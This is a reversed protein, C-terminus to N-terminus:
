GGCSSRGLQRKRQRSAQRSTPGSRVLTQLGNILHQKIHQLNLTVRTPFLPLIDGVHDTTM